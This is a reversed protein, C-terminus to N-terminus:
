SLINILRSAQAAPSYREEFWARGAAGIEAIKEASLENIGNVFEEPRRHDFPIYHKWKVPKHPLQLGYSEFDLLIPATTAYIAEWLRFSDWQIVTETRVNIGSSNFLQRVKREM